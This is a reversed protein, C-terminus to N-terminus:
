DVECIRRHLHQSLDMKPTPVATPGAGEFLQHLRYTYSSMKDEHDDLVDQETLVAAQNEAQNGIVYHHEKFTDDLTQVKEVLSQVTQQDAKLLESKGEPKLIHKGLRTISARTIGRRSRAAKLEAM